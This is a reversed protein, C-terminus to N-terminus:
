ANRQSSRKAKERRRAFRSRSTGVNKLVGEEKSIREIPQEVGIRAEFENLAIKELRNRGLNKYFKWNGLETSNAFVGFEGGTACLYSQLQEHGYGVIETRKCEAIAIFSESRDLLVIDARRNDAGMQIPYETQIFFKSFEPRSFYNIVAEVVVAEHPAKTHCDPYLTFFPYRPQSCLHLRCLVKELDRM